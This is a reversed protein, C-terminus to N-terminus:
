IDKGGEKIKLLIKDLLTTNDKFEVKKKLPDISNKILALDAESFEVKNEKNPYNGNM